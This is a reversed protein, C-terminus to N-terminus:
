PLREKETKKAVKTQKSSLNPTSTAFSPSRRGSPAPSGNQFDDSSSPNFIDSSKPSIQNSYHSTTSNESILQKTANTQSSNYLSSSSTQKTLHQSIQQLQQLQPFSSQGTNKNQFLCCLATYIAPNSTLKQLTENSLTKSQDPSDSLSSSSQPSLTTSSNQVAATKISSLRDPPSNPLDQGNAVSKQSARIEM